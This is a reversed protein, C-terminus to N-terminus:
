AVGPTRGRRCQEAAHHASQHGRGSSPTADAILDNDLSTTDPPVQQRQRHAKQRCNSDCYEGPRGTHQPKRLKGCHKCWPDLNYM